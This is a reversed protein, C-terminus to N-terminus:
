SGTDHSVSVCQLGEPLPIMWPSNKLSNNPHTIISFFYINDFYNSHIYHFIVENGACFFVDKFRRRRQYLDTSFCESEPLVKFTAERLDNSFDSVADFYGWGSFKVENNAYRNPGDYYM